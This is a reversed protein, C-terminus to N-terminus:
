SGGAGLLTVGLPVIALLVFAPLVVLGLPLMLRVGLKEIRAEAAYYEASQLRESESRLIEVAQSGTLSVLKEIDGVAALEEDSPLAVFHKQFLTMASTRAAAFNRGSRLQMSVAILLWGSTIPKPRATELMKGILFKSILLLLLGVLISILLAPQQKVTSLINFGLIHAVVATLVPLWLVIRSTSRPALHALTIKQKASDVWRYREALHLVEAVAGSGSQRACDLLFSLVQDKPLDNQVQNLASGLPIGARLLGAVRALVQASM